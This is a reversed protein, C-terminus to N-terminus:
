GLPFLPAGGDSDIKPTWTQRDQNLELLKAGKDTEALVRDGLAAVSQLRETLPVGTSEGDGVNIETLIHGAQSQVLVLLHEEDGWKVDIIKDAENTTTLARLNGLKMQPGEGTLASIQVTNRGTMVMVRVGDRAIRLRTVDLGALNPAEVPEAGRGSSPDYRLLVSNKRDYTWLSGDRHWTPATFDAGKGNIVEQWRGQPVMAAVSIGTSTKAAVLSNGNEEKSVAFDSYGDRQEGAAGAVVGGPGDKSLYHIAGKTVYYATKGSDDLWTEDTNALATTYPEGNAQIEITRGKAVDNMNLSYKIQARLADRASLDLPGSLNVVVREGGEGSRISEITTGEPLSSTVADKLTATPPKLLRELVTQAFSETTKLRLRVRDVVLRDQLSRNLYYLNTPRYARRVDARTLVLGPPLSKVLFGGQPAKVLDFPQGWSGGTPTYTDDEDIRAVYKGKLWVKLVPDTAERPPPPVVDIADEVVTVPGAASWKARAEPTLYSLLISPDDAYAAMAAQLGRMTEDVGWNPQPKIAIMRHFPKSLPDGAGQDNVTYPGSVPIVTCGSGAWVVAVALAVAAGLRRIRTM